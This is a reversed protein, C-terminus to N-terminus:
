YSIQLLININYNSFSLQLPLAFVLNDLNFNIQVTTLSQNPFNIDNIYKNTLTYSTMFLQKTNTNSLLNNITYGLNNNIITNLIISYNKFLNNSHIANLMKDNIIRLIKMGFSEITNFLINNAITSYLTCYNLVSNFNQIHLSINGDLISTIQSISYNYSLSNFLNNLTIAPQLYQYINSDNIKPKYFIINNFDDTICYVPYQESYNPTDNSYMINWKNDAFYGMYISANINSILYTQYLGSQSMTSVDIRNTNYINYNSKYLVWTRGYNSSMYINCNTNDNYYVTIYKGDYSVNFIPCYGYNPLIFEKLVCWNFSTTTNNPKNTIDALYLMSKYSTNNIIMPYSLLFLKNGDGSLIIHKYYYIPKNTYNIMINTKFGDYSIIFYKSKSIDQPDTILSNYYYYTILIVVGNNSM